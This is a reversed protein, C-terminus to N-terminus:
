DSANQIGTFLTLFRPQKCFPAPDTYLRMEVGAANELERFMKGFGPMTHTLDTAGVRMCYDRPIGLAIGRKVYPHPKLNIAGAQSRFSVDDFGITVKGTTRTTHSVLATQDNCVDQFTAPNLYL